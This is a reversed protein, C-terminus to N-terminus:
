TPTSSAPCVVNVNVNYRGLERAGIKCLGIVGAKAAAYNAQGFKGRLGNISAVAVIKGGKQEQFVAGRGQHLQLGGQPGRRDRRGLRRRWRGSSPM